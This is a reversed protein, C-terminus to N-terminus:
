PDGHLVAIGTFIKRNAYVDRLTVYRSAQFAIFQSYPQSDYVM